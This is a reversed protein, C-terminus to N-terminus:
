SILSVCANTKGFLSCLQYRMCSGTGMRHAALGRSRWEVARDVFVSVEASAEHLRWCLSAAM